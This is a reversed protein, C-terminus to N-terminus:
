ALEGRSVPSGLGDFVAQARQRPNLAGDRGAFDESGSEM